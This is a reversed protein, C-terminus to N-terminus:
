HTKVSSTPLQLYAKTESPTECCGVIEHARVVLIEILIRFSLPGGHAQVRERLKQIFPSNGLVWWLVRSRKLLPDLINDDAVARIM